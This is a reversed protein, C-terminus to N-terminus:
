DASAPEAPAAAPPRQALEDQLTDIITCLALVDMAKVGVITDRKDEARVYKLAETSGQRLDRHIRNQEATLM